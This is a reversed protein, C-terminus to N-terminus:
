AFIDEDATQFVRETLVLKLATVPDAAHEVRWSKGGDHSVNAQYTAGKFWLTLCIPHHLHTLTELDSV